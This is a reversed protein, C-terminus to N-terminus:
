FLLKGERAFEVRDLQYSSRIRPSQESVATAPSVAYQQWKVPFFLAYKEMKRPSAMSPVM